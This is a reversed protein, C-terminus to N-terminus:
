ACKRGLYESWPSDDRWLRVLARMGQDALLVAPYLQPNNRSNRTDLTLHSSSRLDYIHAIDLEVRLLNGLLNRCLERIGQECALDGVRIM